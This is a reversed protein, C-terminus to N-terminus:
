LSEGSINLKRTRIMKTCYTKLQKKALKSPRTQSNEWRNVTAFSVGLENALDQQSLGLQLRIEKVIEPFAEKKTAM